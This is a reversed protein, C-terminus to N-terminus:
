AGVGVVGMQKLLPVIEQGFRVTDEYYSLFCMLVGDMGLEHLRKLKDAVQEATGIVPLAGAGLTFMELTFQDFSGSGIGLGQAWNQVAVVDMHEIIRRVEAEAERETERWLVFPFGACRVTRDYSRGREKFDRTMEATAEISAPGIFAWDCLRAVLDKAEPSIGANVIPPHPKQV